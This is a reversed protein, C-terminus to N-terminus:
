SPIQSRACSTPPQSEVCHRVGPEQDRGRGHDSRRRDYGVGQVQTASNLAARFSEDLAALEAGTKLSLDETDVRIKSEIGFFAPTTGGFAEDGHFYAHLKLLLDARLDELGEPPCSRVSRPRSYSHRKEDVAERYVWAASFLALRERSLRQAADKKKPHFDKKGMRMVFTAFAKAGDETALARDYEYEGGRSIYRFKLSFGDFIGYALEFVDSAPASSRAHNAPQRM